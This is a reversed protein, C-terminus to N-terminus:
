YYYLKKSAILLPNSLEEIHSKNYALLNLKIASAYYLM